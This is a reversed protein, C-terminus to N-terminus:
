IRSSSEFRFLQTEMQTKTKTPSAVVGSVRESLQYRMRTTCLVPTVTSHGARLRERLPNSAMHCLFAFLMKPRLYASSLGILVLSSRSQKV